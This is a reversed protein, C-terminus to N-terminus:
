CSLVRYCHGRRPIAIHQREGEQDTKSERITINLGETVEKIDEVDLKVLESRRFAGGFGILLM